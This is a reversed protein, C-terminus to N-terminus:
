GAFLRRQHGVVRGRRNVVPTEARGRKWNRIYRANGARCKDCRCPDVKSYYRARTGHRPPRYDPRDSPKVAAM